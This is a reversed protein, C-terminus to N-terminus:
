GQSDVGDKHRGEFYTQYVVGGTGPLEFPDIFNGSTPLGEYDNLTFPNDAPTVSGSQAVSTEALRTSLMAATIVPM